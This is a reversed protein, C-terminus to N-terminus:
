NAKVWRAVSGAPLRRAEETKLLMEAAEVQRKRFNWADAVLSALRQGDYGPTHGSILIMKTEGATLEALAKLLRPLDRSLKWTEKAPGRGFSPPDAVVIQYRRGRQIEREVFRMADEAIWRIPHQALGALKANQRAWAVVNKAADVHTVAAGAHALAQTTGGTYAFLNLANLGHLGNPRDAIWRWNEAQEPFVGVQGTPTPRLEFVNPGHEITWTANTEGMWQGAGDPRRRWTLDAPVADAAIPPVNAPVSPTQRRVVVDGFQELKEGGGFDLLRYDKSAFM